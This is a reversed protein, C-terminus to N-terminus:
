PLWRWAALRLWDISERTAVWLVSRNDIRVKGIGEMGPRLREPAGELAAEVRFYTRGEQAETVPTISTVTFAVPETPLAELTLGGTQGIAIFDIDRQDVQLIVRYGDLPAVSFLVTGRTTPAGLKQSLDGEIVIGDLPAVVRTKSLREDILRIQAAAQDIKAKIVQGEVRDGTALAEQFQRELQQQQSSWKLRDLRLERDDLTFMLKGATVEDGARVEANEIYADFPAVVARTFRAELEAQASIQFEVPIAALLALAAVASLAAMKAGTREPGLLLAAAARAQRWAVTYWAEGARCKDALVPGLLASAGQCFEIDEVSFAMGERREFTLAGFVTDAAVLPVTLVAGGGYNRRLLEHQRSIMTPDDDGAPARIPGGQDIAEDMASGIQRVLNMRTGASASHSLAMLRTHGARRMGFSVRDCDTATALHTVLATASAHFDPRELAVALSDFIRALRERTTRGTRSRTRRHIVEFWSVGWQLQRMLAKMGAEDRNEAQLAVVGLLTGDVEIPWAVQCAGGPAGDAAGKGRKMAGKAQRMSTEAIEALAAISAQSNEPWVAAPGRQGDARKVLVVVGNSVGPIIRCQLALWGPCMEEITRAEAFRKWLAQDMYWVNGGDQLGDPTATTLTDQLGDM